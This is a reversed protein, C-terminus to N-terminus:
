ASVQPTVFRSLFQAHEVVHVQKVLFQTELGFQDYARKLADEYAAFFDIVASGQILVFKGEHDAWSPLARAYTALEEDFKM